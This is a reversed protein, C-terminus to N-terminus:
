SLCHKAYLEKGLHNAAIAFSSMVIIVFYLNFIVFKKNLM